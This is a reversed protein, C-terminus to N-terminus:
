PDAQQDRPKARSMARSLARPLRARGAPGVRRRYAKPRLAFTRQVGCAPESMTSLLPYIAVPSGSELICCQLNPCEGAGIASSKNFPPTSHITCPPLYASSMQACRLREAPQRRQSPWNPQAGRRPENDPERWGDYRCPGFRAHTQRHRDQGACADGDPEKVPLARCERAAPFMGRPGSATTMPLPRPWEQLLLHRSRRTGPGGWLTKVPLPEQKHRELVM